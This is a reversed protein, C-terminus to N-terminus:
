HENECNANNVTTFDKSDFGYSETRSKLAKLDNSTSLSRSLVLAISGDRKEFIVEGNDQGYYKLLLDNQGKYYKWNTLYDIQSLFQNPLEPKYTYLSKTSAYKKTIPDYYRYNFSVTDEPEAKLSVIFCQASKFDAFLEQDLTSYAGLLYYNGLLDNISFEDTPQVGVDPPILQSTALTAIAIVLLIKFM